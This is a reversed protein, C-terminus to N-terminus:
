KKKMFPLDLKEFDIKRFFDCPPLLDNDLKKKVPYMLGIQIGCRRAYIM